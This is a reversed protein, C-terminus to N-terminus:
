QQSNMTALNRSAISKSTIATDTLWPTNHQMKEAVYRRAVAEFTIGAQTLGGTSMFATAALKAKAKTPYEALKGIPTLETGLGKNDGAKV